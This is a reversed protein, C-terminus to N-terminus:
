TEGMLVRSFARMEPASADDYREVVNRAEAIWVPYDAPVPASIDVRGTMDMVISWQTLGHQTHQPETAAAAVAADRLIEYCLQKHKMPAGVDFVGPGKRLIGIRCAEM